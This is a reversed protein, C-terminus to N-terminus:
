SLEGKYRAADNWNVRVYTFDGLSVLRSDTLGKWDVWWVAWMIRHPDEIGMIGLWKVTLPTDFPLILDFVGPLLFCEWNGNDLHQLIIPSGIAMKNATWGISSFM